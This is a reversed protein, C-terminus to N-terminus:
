AWVVQKEGHVICGIVDAKVGASKFHELALNRENPSMVLVMGIGMNLTRYLDNEPVNGGRQIIRFLSPVEWSSKDIRASCGKPLIRPVNELLGGGTIHAIGKVQVKKVLDLVAGSYDRHPILLEEGLPRDLGELVSDVTHGCVDFLIRRALSFGNTHLGSSELGIILDDPTIERGLIIKEKEVIGTVAGVLDYEGSAYVGPLEATEGGIVSVGAAKCARTIGTVVQEIHGPDLKDVAIYDLFTLPEAGQCLIDNCSHA